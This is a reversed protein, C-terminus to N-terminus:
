SENDDEEGEVPVIRTIFGQSLCSECDRREKRKPTLTFAKGDCVSCPESVRNVWNDREREIAKAVADKVDKAATAKADEFEKRIARCSELVSTATAAESLLKTKTDQLAQNNIQYQRYFRLSASFYGVVGGFIGALVISIFAVLFSM